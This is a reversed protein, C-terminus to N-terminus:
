EPLDLSEIRGTRIDEELLAPHKALSAKFVPNAMSANNGIGDNKGRYFLLFMDGDNVVLLYIVSKPGSPSTAYSKL